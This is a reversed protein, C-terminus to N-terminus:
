QPLYDYYEMMIVLERCPEETLWHDYYGVINTHKLTKLLTVEQGAQLNDAESLFDLSVMKAVAYSKGSHDKRLKLPALKKQVDVTTPTVLFAIGFQGKGLIKLCKWGNKQLRQSRPDADLSASGSM